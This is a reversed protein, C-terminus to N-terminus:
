PLNGLKMGSAGNRNLICPIEVIADSPLNSISGLNDTNIAPEFSHLVSILYPPM